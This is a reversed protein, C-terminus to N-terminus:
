SFVELVRGMANIFIDVEEKTNYFSLSVRATAPVGFRQMVPMACHHGSRIAVGELDLITGIDHPHAKDSIFSLIAGKEKATGIIKIGKINSISAAAYKLLEQEYAEILPLGVEGIYDIAAGLGIVGAINPTGAEFKYPVVNYTTREFTVSRIMDGGCKYPPMASLHKNKGYLAGIGTPGYLKHASFVYFDCGLEKVDVTMHPAAQAGDVLVPIGHEHAISIIQKVPNITGLANSMHTVSIFKTKNNILKKYEEILLEGDDNIPIIQLKAGITECLMQWPVINSHHEMTSIIIEDGAKLFARGYSNAVLNIGETAGSTFIIESSDTANLFRAVKARVNEYAETAAESLFHVGRHVNSNEASYYKNIANIVKLPKQTTAANDFYVLPKGHVKQSLIPFDKRINCIDTKTDVGLEVTKMGAGSREPM